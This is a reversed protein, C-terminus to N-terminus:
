QQVEKKKDEFVNMALDLRYLCVLELFMKLKGKLPNHLFCYSVGLQHHIATYFIFFSTEIYKM